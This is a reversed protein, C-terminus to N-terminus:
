RMLQQEEEEENKLPLYFNELIAKEEQVKKKIVIDMSHVTQFSHM